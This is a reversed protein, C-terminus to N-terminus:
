KIIGIKKLGAYGVSYSDTMDFNTDKLKGNKDYFWKIQPELKAVKEWIYLKKEDKYKEPFSLTEVVEIENTKKNKKRTIRVLEDCFLKRSEHVTILMPYIKFTSNLIYRAMGNFSYLLLVTNVNTSGCLPAEVIIHILEGNLENLLREKFEVVYKRFIEAKVLIREDVPIDKSIKLELHKLEILKGNSDWLAAGINTTSIDLSWIYKEM